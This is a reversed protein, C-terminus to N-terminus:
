VRMEEGDHAAAVPFPFRDPVSLREIHAEKRPQYHNFMWRKALAKEMIPTIEDEGFHAMECIVLDLEQEYIVSPFDSADGCLDGTLLIRKGEGELLFSYSPRPSCHRTAIATVRLIGDDYIVGEEVTQTRLRGHPFPLNKPLIGEIYHVCANLVCEEAFFLDFAAEKYAWTCLDLLQLLGDVHDGHGHTNFFATIDEAKKGHDRILSAVPAGADFLYLHGDIEVMTSACFHGPRPLGDATGLFTLKM